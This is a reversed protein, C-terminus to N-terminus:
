PLADIALTIHIVLVFRLATPSVVESVSRALRRRPLWQLHRPRPEDAISLKMKGVPVNSRLWDYECVGGCLPAEYSRVINQTSKAVISISPSMRILSSSQERSVDFLNM